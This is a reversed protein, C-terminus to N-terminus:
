PIDHSNRGEAAGDKFGSFYAERKTRALAEEHDQILDDVVKKWDKASLVESEARNLADIIIKSEREQPWYEAYPTGKKPAKLIQLPMTIMTEDESIYRKFLQWSFEDEEAFWEYEQRPETM